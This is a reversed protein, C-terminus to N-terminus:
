PLASYRAVLDRAQKLSFPKHLVGVAGAARAKAVLRADLALGTMVVVPFSSALRAILELSDGEGLLLDVLAIQMSQEPVESAEACGIVPGELALELYERIETDDDVVLIPLTISM